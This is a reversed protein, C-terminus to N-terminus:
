MKHFITRQNLYVMSVVFRIKMSLEYKNNVYHILLYVISRFSQQLLCRAHFCKGNIVYALECYARICRCEAQSLMDNANVSLIVPKDQIYVCAEQGEYFYARSLM